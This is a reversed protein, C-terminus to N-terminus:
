NSVRQTERNRQRVSLPVIDMNSVSTASEEFQGNNRRTQINDLEMLDPGGARPQSLGVIGAPPTPTTPVINGFRRMPQASTTGFYGGQMAQHLLLARERAQKLTTPLGEPLMCLQRRLRFDLGRMFRDLAEGDTMDDCKHRLGMFEGIYIEVARNLQRLSALRDRYLINACPPLFRAFLASKLQAYTTFPQCEGETIAPLIENAWWDQALGTLCAIAIQCKKTEENDGPGVLLPFRTELAICFSKVDTPGLEM